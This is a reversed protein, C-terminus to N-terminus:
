PAPRPRCRAESSLVATGHAALNMAPFGNVGSGKKGFQGCLTFVLIQAREMSVGHYFKGFNSQTILTAARARAM